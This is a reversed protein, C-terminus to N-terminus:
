QKRNKLPIPTRILPSLMADTIRALAGVLAKTDGPKLVALLRQRVSQTDVWMKEYARRGKRTLTVRLARADRPHRRRAVLGQKELLVLMARITSPDSAARHVLEQQTSGDEEVLLALLVFQNATVGRRALCDDSHRHMAWYAMRLGM